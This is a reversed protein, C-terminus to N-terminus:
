NSHRMTFVRYFHLRLECRVASVTMCYHVCLVSCELDCCQLACEHFFFNNFVVISKMATSIEGVCDRPRARFPNQRLQSLILPKAFIFFPTTTKRHLIRLFHAASCLVCCAKKGLM